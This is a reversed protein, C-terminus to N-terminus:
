GEMWAARGPVTKTGKLSGVTIEGTVDMGTFVPFEWRQPPIGRSESMRRDSGYSGWSERSDRSHRDPCDDPLSPVEQCRSLTVWSWATGAPKSSM